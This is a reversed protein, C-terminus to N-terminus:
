LRKAVVLLLCIPLFKLLFMKDNYFTIIKQELSNFCGLRMHTFIRRHNFHLENGLPIVVGMVAIPHQCHKGRLTTWSFTFMALFEMAMIPNYIPEPWNEKLIKVISLFVNAPMQRKM